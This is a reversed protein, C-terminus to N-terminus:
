RIEIAFLPLSFKRVKYFCYAHLMEINRQQEERVMYM